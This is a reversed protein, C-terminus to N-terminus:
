ELALEIAFATALKTFNTMHDLNLLSMSDAVSHIYPNHQEMKAECPFSAPIGAQTWSAHDSCGYGCHSYGVPVKVYTKILNALFENLLKNTYDSYIWMTADKPNARYGTMDFQIAARVPIKNAKFDAVVYQSGVLGREEAAYWIIYIPRKFALDSSLLIRTMEMVTAAGSADDDAGPMNGDLTDMHAGIVVAPAAIDKGIVTVLSPQKYSGTSVFYSATDSRGSATVMADFSEKLWNAAAVGTDKSASRNQFATLHTVNQWINDPVIQSLANNVKNPHKIEYSESFVELANFSQKAQEKLLNQALAQKTALLNTQFRHTVNIFHGCQTEDALHVLKEVDTSALEIIKFEKNEAMVQYDFAIKNALCQPLQLQEKAPPPTNAQLANSILNLGMILTTIWNKTNM